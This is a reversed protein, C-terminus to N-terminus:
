MWGKTQLYKRERLAREKRALDSLMAQDPSKRGGTIKRAFKRIMRGVARRMTM